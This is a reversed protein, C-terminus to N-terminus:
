GVFRDGVGLCQDAGGAGVNADTPVLGEEVEGPIVNPHWRLRREKIQDVVVPGGEVLETVPGAVVSPERPSETLAETRAGIAGFPEDGLYRTREDAGHEVDIGSDSM